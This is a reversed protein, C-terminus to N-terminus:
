AGQQKFKNRLDLWTDTLGCLAIMAMVHPIMLLTIYLLPVMFRSNKTAAFCSHLVATGIFIYLVFLLALLNWCFDGVAGGVLWAIAILVATAMAVERHAKLALFEDRFGGPNFLHAQWWRAMFLGFLLGCISGGAVIGTMYHSFGAATQKILEPDVDPQNLLMPQIMMSLVAQWFALPDSHVLFFGAVCVLGLLVALEVALGLNRGERLVIAILWVPLWLVAGYILAFQYDGIWVSSLLVAALCACALVFFGEKAGLRLTVLAVAASSVVSVPPFPLSLLALSTAVLMANLRGKLIFAALFHV